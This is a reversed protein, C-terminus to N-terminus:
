LIYCTVLRPDTENARIIWVSRVTARGAPGQCTFDIVYRQGFRDPPSTVAEGTAAAHRLADVLLDSNELTIGLLTKFLEAKHRGDEHEFSLSYGTLM